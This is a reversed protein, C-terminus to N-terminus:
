VCDIEYRAYKCLVATIIGRYGKYQLTVLHYNLIIIFQNIKLLKTVNTIAMYMMITQVCVKWM